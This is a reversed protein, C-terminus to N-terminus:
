PLILMADGYSFFRYGDGIALAYLARLRGMGSGAEGPRELMAATMALLTSRPLHFNTLLGDTWRWAYGPTVLLRTEVPGMGEGGEARAAFTEVTRASTTGVCMVRGGGRRTRGIAEVTSAPMACREAHMPHEEVFETEVSRFTGVGVDLTVAARAVGMAELGALLGPTLHLGATPAAVSGADGGAYTTQYRERDYAESAEVGASTRARVIYPPLPTRGVRRLWAPEEPTVGPAVAGPRPATGSADSEEVRAVWVGAEGEVREGLVLGAGEGGGDAGELTVRVGPRLRKGQLMVRVAGGVV